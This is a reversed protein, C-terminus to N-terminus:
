ILQDLFKSCKHVMNILTQWQARSHALTKMRHRECGIKGFNVGDVGLELPTIKGQPNGILIKHVNRM